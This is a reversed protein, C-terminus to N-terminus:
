RKSQHKSYAFVSSITFFLFSIISVAVCLEPIWIALNSNLSIYDIGSILGKSLILANSPLFNIVLLIATPLKNVFSAAVPIFLVILTIVMAPMSTYSISSCFIAIAVMSFLAIFGIIVIKIYVDQLTYPACSLSNLFQVSTSLGSKGLILLNLLSYIGINLIYLIGSFLFTSFIKAIAFHRRGYKTTRYVMDTKNEYSSAFLSSAVICSLFAVLGIQLGLLNIALNWGEFSKFVFPTKIKDIKKSIYKYAATDEKFKEKVSDRVQTKWSDYISTSSSDNSSFEGTNQLFPLFNEITYSYPVMQENKVDYPINGDYQLYLDNIKDYIQKLNEDTLTLDKEHARRYKLASIGMNSYDLYGKENYLGTSMYCVNSIASLLAVLIAIALSLLVAKSKFTRKLEKKLLLLM